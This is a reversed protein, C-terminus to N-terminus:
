QRKGVPCNPPVLRSITSAELFSATLRSTMSLDHGLQSVQSGRMLHGVQPPKVTSRKEHGRQPRGPGPTHLFQLTSVTAYLFLGSARLRIKSSAPLRKPGAFIGSETFPAFPSSFRVFVGSGRSFPNNLARVSTDIKLSPVILNSEVLAIRVCKRGPSAPSEISFACAM